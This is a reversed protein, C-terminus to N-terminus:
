ERFNERLVQSVLRIIKRCEAELDESGAIALSDIEYCLMEKSRGFRCDGTHRIANFSNALSHCKYCRRGERKERKEM